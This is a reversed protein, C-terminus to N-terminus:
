IIKYPHEYVPKGELIRKPSFAALALTPVRGLILDALYSGVAHCQQFGHGSFGNALYFGSLEPWEGLLANGDITNMAYLGAWGSRLRLREFTPLYEVLEPWMLTEFRKRSWSFDTVTIPDDPYSKGCMFHGGGEHIVYLGSPFFLSPIIDEHKAETEVIYVQRMVPEVPLDVGVTRTLGAAWAGACNAIIGGKLTEGSALKVGTVATAGKSFSAIEAELFAAGLSVAKKKYAMLVALPSISGDRPGFTGAVCGALNYLPMRARVANPELWEIECGLSKQLDFGQRALAVGVEDVIFMNGQQRFAIDPVDGDVTMEEVFSGLVELAYLSMLINEKVNFQIRTNGDSLATSSRAHTMDREVVAVKLHREKKLLNYAVACGMVGGGAIIIDFTRKSM